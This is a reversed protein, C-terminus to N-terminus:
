TNRLLGNSVEIANGNRGQYSFQYSFLQWQRGNQFNM